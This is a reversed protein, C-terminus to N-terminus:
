KGHKIRYFPFMSVDVVGRYRIVPILLLAGEPPPAPANRVSPRDAIRQGDSPSNPASPQALRSPGALNAASQAQNLAPPSQSVFHGALNAVPDNAVSRTNVNSEYLKDLNRVIGPQHLRKVPSNEFM